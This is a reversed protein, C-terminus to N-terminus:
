QTQVQYRLMKRCCIYGAYSFLFSIVYLILSSCTGLPARIGRGAGNRSAYFVERLVKVYFTIVPRVCPQISPHNFSRVSLLFSYVGEVYKTHRPIIIQFHIIPRLFDHKEMTYIGLLMENITHWAGRLYYTLHLWLDTVM